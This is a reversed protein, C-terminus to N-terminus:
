IRQFGILKADQYFAFLSHGGLNDLSEVKEHDESVPQFALLLGEEVFGELVMENDYYDPGAVKVDLQNDRGRRVYEFYTQISYIENQGFIRQTHFQQSPMTVEKKFVLM